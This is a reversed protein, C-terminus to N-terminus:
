SGAPFKFGSLALYISFTSPVGASTLCNLSIFKAADSDRGSRLIRENIALATLIDGTATADGSHHRTRRGSQLSFRHLALSSARPKTGLEFIMPGVYLSCSCCNM